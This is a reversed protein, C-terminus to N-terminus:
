LERLPLSHSPNRLDKLPSNCPIHTERIIPIHIDCKRQRIVQHFLNALNCHIPVRCQGPQHSFEQRLKGPFVLRSPSLPTLPVRKLAAELLELEFDPLSSPFSSVQM